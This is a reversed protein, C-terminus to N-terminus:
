LVGSANLILTSHKKTFNTYIDCHGRAITHQLVEAFNGHNYKKNLHGLRKFLKARTTALSIAAMLLMLESFPKASFMRCAIIRVVLSQNLIFISDHLYLLGWQPFLDTM